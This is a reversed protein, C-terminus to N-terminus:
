RKLFGPRQLLTPQANQPTMSYRWAEIAWRGTARKLVLTCLGESPPITTGAADTVNRLEWKADAIAIDPAICRIAGITLSHRSNKYEPRMFLATRNELIRLASGEIFGDPHVMDGEAAWFQSILLPDQKIWAVAFAPGIARITREDGPLCEDSRRGLGPRPGTEARIGAPASAEAPVPPPTRRLDDIDGRIARFLAEVVAAGKDRTAATADGWTGSPSYTTRMGDRRSLLFPSSEPSLERSARSMDVASPDIYLMMSTEIEDAHAGLPQRQLTRATPELRGRADTYRLLIGERALVKVAEDLAPVPLRSTNLAYFRRPGHRALSRAVDATLDRATNLSLSTSGPYEVFSPAHHYSLPPAVVADLEAAIRRTLYEAIRRDTDLPLHLGHQVAAAGVPVVVVTDPKLRDEAVRWSVDQLRVGATPSAPGTPRQARQDAMAVLLVSAGIVGLRM